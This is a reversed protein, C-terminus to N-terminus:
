ISIYGYTKGVTVSCTARVASRISVVAPVMRLVGITLATTKGVGKPAGKCNQEKKWKSSNNLQCSGQCTKCRLKFPKTDDNADDAEVCVM